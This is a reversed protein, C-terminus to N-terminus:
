SKFGKRVSKGADKAQETVQRAAGGVRENKGKTELNPNGVARGTKQKVRGKGMESKNRFKDFIGM